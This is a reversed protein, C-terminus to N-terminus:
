TLIVVIVGNDVNNATNLLKVQGQGFVEIGAKGGPWEKRATRHGKADSYHVLPVDVGM